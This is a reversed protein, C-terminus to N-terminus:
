CDENRPGFIDKDIRKDIIYGLAFGSIFMVCCLM